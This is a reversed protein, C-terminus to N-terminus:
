GRERERVLRAQWVDPRRPALPDQRDPMPQMGVALLRGPRDLDTASRLHLEIWNGLSPDYRVAPDDDVDVPGAVMGGRTIRLDIVGPTELHAFKGAELSCSQSIAM